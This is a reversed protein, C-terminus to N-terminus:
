GGSLEVFDFGSIEQNCKAGGDRSDPFFGETEAGFINAKVREATASGHGHVEHCHWYEGDHEDTAPTAVGEQSVNSPLYFFEATSHACFHNCILSEESYRFNALLIRADRSMSEVVPQSLITAGVRQRMRDHGSHSEEGLDGIAGNSQQSRAKPSVCNKCGSCLKQNPSPNPHM